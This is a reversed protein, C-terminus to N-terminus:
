ADGESEPLIDPMIVPRREYTFDFGGLEMCMLVDNMSDTKRQCTEIMTLATRNRAQWEILSNTHVIYVFGVLLALPIVIWLLIVVVRWLKTWFSRPIGKPKENMM